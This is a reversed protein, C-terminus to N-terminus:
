IALAEKGFNRIDALRSCAHQQGLGLTVHLRRSKVPLQCRRPSRSEAEHLPGHNPPTKRCKECFHLAMAFRAAWKSYVANRRPEIVTRPYLFSPGGTANQPIQIFPPAILPVRIPGEGVFFRVWCLIAPSHFLLRAVEM